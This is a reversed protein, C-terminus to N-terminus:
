VNDITIVKTVKRSWYINQIWQGCISLGMDLILEATIDSTVRQAFLLVIQTNRAKSHLQKINKPEFSLQKLYLVFTFDSKKYGTTIM